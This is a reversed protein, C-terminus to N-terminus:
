VGGNIIANVADFKARADAPRKAREDPPLAILDTYAKYAGEGFGVDILAPISEGLNLLAADARSKRDPAADGARQIDQLTRIARVIRTVRDKSQEATLGPINWKIVDQPRVDASTGEGNVQPTSDLKVEVQSFLVYALLGSGFLAFFLGPGVDWMKIRLYKGVNGEIGGQRRSTKEGESASRFLRFGLWLSLAGALAVLLRESIRSYAILDQTSAQADVSAALGLFLLVACFLKFKNM